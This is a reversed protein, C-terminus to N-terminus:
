NLVPLLPSGMAMGDNQQYVQNDFTFHINKICLTLLEKMEPRTIQTKIEKRDSTRELTIEITKELPVNTFLSKVDFSVM